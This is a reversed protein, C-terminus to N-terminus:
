VEDVEMRALAASSTPPAPGSLGNTGGVLLHQDLNRAFDHVRGTRLEVLGRRREVSAQSGGFVPKLYVDDFRRWRNQEADSAEASDDDDDNAAAAGLPSLYGASRMDLRDVVLNATTGLAITTIICLALTTSQIQAVGPVTPDLQMSLAFAVSGRLGSFWLVLQMKFPIPRRRCCNALRALPFINLARSVFCAVLAVAIFGFDLFSDNTFVALGVSIFVLTEATKAMAELTYSGSVRSDESLNHLNYHSLVLSTIFLAMVGSLEVLEAIAFSAFAFLFLLQIEMVPYSRLLTLRKFLLSCALGMGLGVALSGVAVALFRLMVPGVQSAGTWETSSAEEQFVNFLVIAVADNLVSEGFVLSLLLEDVRLSEDGLIALTAVPDVSSILAGFTFCYLVPINTMIGTQGFAFVILGVAFASILTGLGAFLLIAGINKFFLRKHCNYGAEFIIVTRM